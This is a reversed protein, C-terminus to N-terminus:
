QLTYLSSGYCVFEHTYTDAVPLQWDSVQQQTLMTLNQGNCEINSSMPMYIDYPQQGICQKHM